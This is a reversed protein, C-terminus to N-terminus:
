KLSNCGKNFLNMKELIVLTINIYLHRYDLFEDRWLLRKSLGEKLFLSVARKEKPLPNM